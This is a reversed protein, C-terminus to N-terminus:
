WLLLLCLLLTQRCFLRSFYLRYQLCKDHQFNSVTKPDSSATHCRYQAEFGLESVTSHLFLQTIDAAVSYLRKRGGTMTWAYIMHVDWKAGLISMQLHPWALNSCVGTNWLASENWTNNHKYFAHLSQDNLRSCAGDDALWVLPASAEEMRWDWLLDTWLASWNYLPKLARPPPRGRGVASACLKCKSSTIFSSNAEASGKERDVYM